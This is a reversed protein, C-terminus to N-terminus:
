YDEKIWEWCELMELHVVDGSECNQNYDEVFQEFDSWCLYISEGDCSAKAIFSALGLMAVLVISFLIKKM